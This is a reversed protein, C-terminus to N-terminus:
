EGRKKRRAPKKPEVSDASRKRPRGRSRSPETPGAPRMLEDVTVGLAAAIKAATALAPERDGQELKTVGHLHLGAKEALQAQTLGTRQRLRRLNSAFGSSTKKAMA